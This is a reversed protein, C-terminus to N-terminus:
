IHIFPSVSSFCLCQFVVMIHKPHHLSQSAWIYACCLFSQSIQTHQQSSPLCKIREWIESHNGHACWTSRWGMFRVHLSLFCTNIYGNHLIILVRQQYLPRESPWSSDPYCLTLWFWTDLAPSTKKKIKKGYKDVFQM